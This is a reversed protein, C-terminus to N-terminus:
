CWVIAPDNVLARAIAIRQQQGGSLQAPRKSAQDVLGLLDLELIAKKRAVNPHVGTVLLPLEINEIVSLVPLLNFSQFVFGMRQARFRTRARDRLQYLDQGEIHVTGSTPEDIGSLCNLLTTKGSGSPGMVAVIEGKQISLDVEELASAKIEGTDYVKTLRETSIITEAGAPEAQYIKTVATEM